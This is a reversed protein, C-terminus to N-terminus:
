WSHSPEMAPTCAPEEFCFSWIHDYVCVRSFRKYVAKFGVGMFGIKKKDGSSKTSLGVSALGLVDLPSFSKGNHCFLLGRQDLQQGGRSSSSSSSSSPSPPPAPLSKLVVTDAGDDVANQLLEFLYLDNRSFQKELIALFGRISPELV